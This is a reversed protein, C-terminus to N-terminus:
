KVAKCFVVEVFFKVAPLRGDNRDKSGNFPWRASVGFGFMTWQLASLNRTEAFVGCISPKTEDNLV